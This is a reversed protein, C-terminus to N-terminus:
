SDELSSEDKRKNPDVIKFLQGIEEELQDIQENKIKLFCRGRLLDNAYSRNPNTEDTRGTFAVMLM